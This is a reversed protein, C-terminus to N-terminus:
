PQAVDAETFTFAAGLVHDGRLVTVALTDGIHMQRRVRLLDRESHM